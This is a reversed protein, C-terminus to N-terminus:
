LGPRNSDCDSFPPHVETSGNSAIKRAVDAEAIMKKRHDEKAKEIRQQQPALRPPPTLQGTETGVASAASETEDVAKQV